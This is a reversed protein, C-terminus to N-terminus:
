NPRLVRLRFRTQTVIGSLRGSAKPWALVLALAAAALVVAYVPGAVGAGVIVVGAPWTVMSWDQHREAETPNKAAWRTHVLFGSAPGLFMHVLWWANNPKM